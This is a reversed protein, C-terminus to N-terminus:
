WSRAVRADRNRCVHRAACYLCHASPDGPSSPFRGETMGKVAEAIRENVEAQVNELTAKVKDGDKDYKQYCKIVGATTPDKTYTSGASKIDDFAEDSSLM